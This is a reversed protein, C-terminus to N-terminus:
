EQHLLDEMMILTRTILSQQIPMRGYEFCFPSSIEQKAKKLVQWLKQFSCPLCFYLESLSFAFFSLLPDYLLSLVSFTLSSFCRLQLAGYVLVSLPGENFCAAFPLVRSQFELTTMIIVSVSSWVRAMTRPWSRLNEMAIKRRVPVETIPLRRLPVSAMRFLMTIIVAETPDLRKVANVIALHLWRKVSQQPAPSCLFAEM